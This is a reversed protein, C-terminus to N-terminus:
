VVDEVLMNKSEEDTLDIVCSGVGEDGCDQELVLRDAGCMGALFAAFQKVSNFDFGTFSVNPGFLGNVDFEDNSIGYKIKIEKM